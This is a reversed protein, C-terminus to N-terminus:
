ARAILGDDSRKAPIFQAWAENGVESFSRLGLFSRRALLAVATV